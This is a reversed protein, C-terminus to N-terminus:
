GKILKLTVYPLKSNLWYSIWQALRGSLLPKEFMYKLPDMRSNVTHYQVVSLPVIEAKGMALLLDRSQGCCPAVLKKWLPIVPNMDALKKSLYYIAQEKKGSM